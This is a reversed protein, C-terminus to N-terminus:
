KWVTIPPDPYVVTSAKKIQSPPTPVATAQMVRRLLQRRRLLQLQRVGEPLIIGSKALVSINHDIQALSLLGTSLLHLAQSDNSM